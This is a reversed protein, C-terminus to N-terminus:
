DDLKYFRVSCASQSPALEADEEDKRERLDRQLAQRAHQRKVKEPKDHAGAKRHSAAMAFPNRPVITKGRTKM